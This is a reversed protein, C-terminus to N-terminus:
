HGSTDCNVMWEIGYRDTLMGFRAGWFTDQFPMAVTGGDALRHFIRESEIPDKSALSLTVNNDGERHSHSPSDSAM